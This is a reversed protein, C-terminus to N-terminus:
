TFYNIYKFFFFFLLLFVCKKRGNKSAIRKQELSNPFINQNFFTKWVVPYCIIKSFLFRNRCTIDDHYINKNLHLVVITREESIKSIRFFLEFMSNARELCKAYCLKNNLCLISVIEKLCQCTHFPFISAFRFAPIFYLIM